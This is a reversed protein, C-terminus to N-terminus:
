RIATHTHGQAQNLARKQTPKSIRGTRTAIQEQEQKQQQEQEEIVMWMYAKKVLLQRNTRQKTVWIEQLLSTTEPSLRISTLDESIPPVPDEQKSEQYGLGTNKGLRTGM